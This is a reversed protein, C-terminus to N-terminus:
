FNVLPKVESYVTLAMTELNVDTILNIGPRKGKELSGLQKKWGFFNAGNLTAWKLLQQLKIKPSHKSITKMEDLISLSWNSAYSDTGLLIKCSADIFTQFDPLRNEIYLNANGCFCWWIVSSYLHAWTIDEETSYTNHVLMTKNCKPLHVLTSALSSFGSPKWNDYLNGFTSLKEFLAGSKSRFMENESKTEQNHLTLISDHLYAHEYIRKLLQPSVTYPAHPSLSSTSGTENFEKMLAFGKEFEKDSNAPIIDFLEIFNHYHLRKKKKQFVTDATNCIDGVAVIGNAIMEDEARAIAAAIIEKEAERHQVVEGIFAPLTKGESVKGKLHSLELHCHANIFGPCIIGSYKEFVINGSLDGQEYKEPPLVEVIEGEEDAIVVGNKIPPSSIPFVYDATIHHMFPCLYQFPKTHHPTKVPHIGWPFAAHM